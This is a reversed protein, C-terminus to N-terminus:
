LWLVIFKCTLVSLPYDILLYCVESLLKTSADEKESIQQLLRSNQEQLEEFSKSIASMEQLLMEGERKENELAKKLDQIVKETPQQDSQYLSVNPFHSVFM